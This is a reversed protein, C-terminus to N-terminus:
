DKPQDAPKWGYLLIATPVGVAFVGLMFVYGSVSTQMVGSIMHGSTCGGALRAGILAIFGGVFAFAFRMAPKYGFRRQFVEPVKKDEASPKPGGFMSSLLAGVFMALVFIYSYNVPNSASKAYSGRSKNIYANPSSYQTQGDIEETQVIENDLSKWIITDTVIFQTSVGLPKVLVIALVAVAALAIGGKLWNLEGKALM